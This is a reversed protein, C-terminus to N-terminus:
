MDPMPPVPLQQDSTPSSPHSPLMPVPLVPKAGPLTPHPFPPPPPAAPDASHSLADTQPLSTADRYSGTRSCTVRGETVQRRTRPHAIRSRDEFPPHIGEVKRWGRTKSNIKSIRTSVSDFSPPFSQHIISLLHIIITTDDTNM